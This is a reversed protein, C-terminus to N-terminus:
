SRSTRLGEVLWAEKVRLAEAIQGAPTSGGGPREAAASAVDREVAHHTADVLMVPNVPIVRALNALFMLTRTIKV